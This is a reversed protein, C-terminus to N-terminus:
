ERGERFEGVVRNDEIRFNTVFGVVTMGVRVPIDKGFVIGLYKKCTYNEVSELNDTPLLVRKELFM